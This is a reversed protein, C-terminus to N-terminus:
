REPPLILRVGDPHSPAILEHAVKSRGTCRKREANPRIDLCDDVSTGITSSSQNTYNQEAAGCDAAPHFVNRVHIENQNYRVAGCILVHGPKAVVNLADFVKVPEPAM